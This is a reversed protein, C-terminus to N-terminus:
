TPLISKCRCGATVLHEEEEVSLHHWLLGHLTLVEVHLCVRSSHQYLCCPSSTVGLGVWCYCPARGQGLPVGPSTGRSPLLSAAGMRGRVSCLWLFGTLVSPKFVIWLRMIYYWFTWTEICFWEDYLFGPFIEFQVVFSLFFESFDSFSIVVNMIFIIWHGIIFMTPVFSFFVYM